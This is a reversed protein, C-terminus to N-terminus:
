DNEEGGCLGLKEFFEERKFDEIKRANEDRLPACVPAYECFECADYTGKAPQAAIDGDRLELAMDVLLRDVHQMIAGLEAVSALSESSKSQEDKVVVPIYLGKADHEMGFIVQLDDLILGNMRLQRLKEKELKFADEDRDLSM